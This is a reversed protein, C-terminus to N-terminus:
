EAEMEELSELDELLKIAETRFLPLNASLTNRYVARTALDSAKHGNGINKNAVAAWYLVIPDLQNAQALEAASTENDGDAGALYGNLEHIRRWESATGHAQTAAKYEAARATATEIDDTVIAAIAAKFMYTREAQDKNADNLASDQRHKLAIEYYELASAGDGSVAMIDGVYESIGGM